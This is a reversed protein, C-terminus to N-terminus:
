TRTEQRATPAWRWRGLGARRTRTGCTGGVPRSRDDPNRVDLLGIGADVLALGEAVELLLCHCAARTGPGAQISGCNIHHVLTM